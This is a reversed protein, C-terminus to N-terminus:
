GHSALAQTSVEDEFADDKVTSCVNIICGIICCCDTDGDRVSFKAQPVFIALENMEGIAFAVEQKDVFWVVLRATADGALQSDINFGIKGIKLKTTRESKLQILSTPSEIFFEENIIDSLIELKIYFLDFLKGEGKVCIFVRIFKLFVKKFFVGPM